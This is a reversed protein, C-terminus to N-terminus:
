SVINNTSAGHSSQWIGLYKRKRWLSFLEKNSLHLQIATLVSPGQPSLLSQDQEEQEMEATLTHSHLFLSCVSSTGKCANADTHHSLATSMWPSSARLPPLSPYLYAGCCCEECAWHSHKEASPASGPKWGWCFVPFIRIRLYSARDYERKLKKLLHEKM